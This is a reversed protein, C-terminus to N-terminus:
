RHWSHSSGLIIDWRTYANNYVHRGFHRMTDNLFNPMDITLGGLAARARWFAVRQASQEAWKRAM